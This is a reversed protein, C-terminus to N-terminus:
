RLREIIGFFGTAQNSPGPDIKLSRLSFAAHTLFVYRNSHEQAERKCQTGASVPQICAPLVLRSVGTWDILDGIPVTPFSVEARTRIAAFM